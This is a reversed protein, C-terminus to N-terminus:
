LQLRKNFLDMAYKGELTHCSLNLNLGSILDHDLSVVLVLLGHIFVIDPDVVFSNSINDVRALFDVNIISEDRDNDLLFTFM